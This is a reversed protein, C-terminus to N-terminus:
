RHQGKALRAAMREDSSIDEDEDPHIRDGLSEREFRLNAALARGYERSIESPINNSLSWQRRNLFRSARDAMGAAFYWAAVGKVPEVKIVENKALDVLVYGLSMYDDDHIEVRELGKRRLETDASALAVRAAQEARLRNYRERRTAAADSLDHVESRGLWRDDFPRAM